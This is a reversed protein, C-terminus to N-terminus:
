IGRACRFINHYRFLLQQEMRTKTSTVPAFLEVSPLYLIHEDWYFGGHSGNGKTREEAAHLRVQVDCEVDGHAALREEVCDVQDDRAHADRKEGNEGKIKRGVRAFLHM